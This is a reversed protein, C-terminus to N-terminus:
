SQKSSPAARLTRMARVFRAAQRLAPLPLVRGRRCVLPAALPLVLPAALPLVLPPALPRAARLRGRADRVAQRAAAPRPGAPVDLGSVGAARQPVAGADSVEAEVARLPEAEADSAAAGEPQRAAPGDWAAVGRRSALEAAALPQVARGCVGAAAGSQPGVRECALAPAERRLAAAQQASAAPRASETVWVESPLVMEPAAAARCRWAVVLAPWLERELQSALEAPAEPRLAAQHRFGRPGAAAYRRAPCVVEADPLVAAERRRLLSLVESERRMVLAEPQRCRWGSAAVRQPHRSAAPVARHM